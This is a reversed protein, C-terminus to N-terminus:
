DSVVGRYFVAKGATHSKREIMIVDGVEVDMGVLAPDSKHISPLENITIHFRELVEAKEKESLKKHKPILIHQRAEQKAMKREV